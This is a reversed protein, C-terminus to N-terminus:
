SSRFRYRTKKKTVYARKESVCSWRLEGSPGPPASHRLHALLRPIRFLMKESYARIHYSTFNNGDPDDPNEPPPSSIKLCSLGVLFLLCFVCPKAVTRDAVRDGCPRHEFDSAGEGGGRGRERPERADEGVSEARGRGRSRVGCRINPSSPAGPSSPPSCRRTSSSRGIGTKQRRPRRTLPSPSNSGPASNNLTLSLCDPIASKSSSKSSTSPSDQHFCRNTPRHNSYFILKSSASRIARSSRASKVGTM